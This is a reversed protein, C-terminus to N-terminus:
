DMVHVLVLPSAPEPQRLELRRTVEPEGDAGHWTVELLRREAEDELVRVLGRALRTVTGRGGSIPGEHDLYVPRHDAISEADLDAGPAAEDIRREMRMTELSAGEADSRAIMWDHHFSGDPLEHRLVVTPLRVRAPDAMAGAYDGAGAARPGGTM